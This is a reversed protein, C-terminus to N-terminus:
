VWVFQVVIENCSSFPPSFPPPPPTNPRFGRECHGTNEHHFSSEHLFFFHCLLPSPLSPLLYYFMDAEALQWPQPARLDVVSMGAVVAAGTLTAPLQADVINALRLAM